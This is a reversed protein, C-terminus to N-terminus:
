AFVDERIAAFIEGAKDPYRNKLARKLVADFATTLEPAVPRSALSIHVERIWPSLQGMAPPWNRSKLDAMALDNLARNEAVAEGRAAAEQERREWAQAFAAVADLCLDLDAPFPALAIE